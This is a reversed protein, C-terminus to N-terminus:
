NKTFLNLIELWTLINAQRLMIVYVTCYKKVKEKGWRSEQGEEVQQALGDAEKAGGSITEQASPM